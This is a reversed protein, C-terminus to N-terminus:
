LHRFQHLRSAFLLPHSLYPNWPGLLAYGCMLPARCALAAGGLAGFRSVSRISCHVFGSRSWTTPAQQRGFLSCTLNEARQQVWPRWRWDLSDPLWDVFLPQHHGGLPSVHLVIKQGHSRLGLSPSPDHQHRHADCRCHHDLKKPQPELPFGCLRIVSRFHFRRPLSPALQILTLLALALTEFHSFWAQFCYVAWSM